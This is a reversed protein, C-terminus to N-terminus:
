ISSRGLYVTVTVSLNKDLLSEHWAKAFAKFLESFVASTERSPKVEFGTYIKHSISSLQSITSDGPLFGSKHATLLSNLRYKKNLKNVNFLVTIKWFIEWSQFYLFQTISTKVNDVVRRIFLSLIYIWWNFIINFQYYWLLMENNNKAKDCELYSPINRCSVKHCKSSKLLLPLIRPPENSLFFLKCM